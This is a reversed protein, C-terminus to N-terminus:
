EFWENWDSTANGGTTNGGLEKGLTAYIDGLQTTLSESSNGTYYIRLYDIAGLHTMGSATADAFSLSIDNWGTKLNELSIAWQMEECDCRRSSGIEVCMAGASAFNDINNLYLRVQLAGKQYAKINVPVNLYKTYRVNAAGTLASDGCGFVLKKDAIEGSEQPALVCIDDVATVLRSDQYYAGLVKTINQHVNIYNIASLDITGKVTTPANLDLIIETWGGSTLENLPIEWELSDTSISSGIKVLLPYDQAFYSCNNVYFWLHLKGNKNKSVDVPQTLQGEFRAKSKGSLYYAGTGEKKM